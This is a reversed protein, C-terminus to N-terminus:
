FTVDPTLGLVLVPNLKFKINRVRDATGNVNELTNAVADIAASAATGVTSLAGQFALSAQTYALTYAAKGNADSVSSGQGQLAQLQSTATRALAQSQRVVDQAVQFVEATPVSAPAASTGSPAPIGSPIAGLLNGIVTGVRTRISNSNSTVQRTVATAQDTRDKVTTGSAHTLDGVLTTTKLIDNRLINLATFAPDALESPNFVVEPLVITGATITARPLIAAKVSTFSLTTLVAALVQIQM